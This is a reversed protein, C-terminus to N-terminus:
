KIIHTYQITIHGPMQYQTWSQRINSYNRYLIIISETYHKFLVEISNYYSTM